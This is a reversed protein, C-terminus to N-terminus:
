RRRAGPRIRSRGSALFPPARQGVARRGGDRSTTTTVTRARSRGAVAYLQRDRERIPTQQGSTQTNLLEISAPNTNNVYLVNGNVAATINALLAPSSSIVRDAPATGNATPSYALVNQAGPNTAYLEGSADLAMGAPGAQQGNGIIARQLTPNTTPTSCGSIENTDSMYLKGASDVAVGNVTFHRDPLSIVQVPTAIGRAGPKFVAVYGTTSGGVYLYGKADVAISTPQFQLKVQRIPKDYCCAKPKYIQVSNNVLRVVFLSGNQGIAIAGPNYPLVLSTGAPAKLTGDGNLVFRFVSKGVNDAVYLAGILYGDSQAQPSRWRHPEAAPNPPTVPVGSSGGSCGALSLSAIAAAFAGLPSIRGNFM